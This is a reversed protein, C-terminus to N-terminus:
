RRTAADILSRPSLVGVDEGGGVAEAVNGDQHGTAAKRKAM